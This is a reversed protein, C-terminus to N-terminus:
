SCSWTAPQKPYSTRDLLVKGALVVGTLTAILALTHALAM